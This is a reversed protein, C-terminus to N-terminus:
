AFELHFYVPLRLRHWYVVGLYEKPGIMRMEDRIWHAILSTKSYDLVICEKQDLWSPATYVTAVIADIGFPSIRNTLVGREAHFTKGKWGVLDIVRAIESALSTGPAVIATGNARGDPIPGAESNAFLADLQAQRMGLLSVKHSAATM